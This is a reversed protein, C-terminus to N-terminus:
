DTRAIHLRRLTVQIDEELFGDDDGDENDEDELVQLHLIRGSYHVALLMQITLLVIRTSLAILQPERSEEGSWGHASDEPLPLHTAGHAFHNRVHRVFDLGVGSRGMHSPLSDTRVLSQYLISHATLVNLQELTETYATFPGFRQLYFIVRDVLGNAGKHRKGAPISPPGIVTAVTEFAGWAFLFVTLQATLRSLLDSRADEYERATGCYLLADDFRGTLVDIGRIGAALDLWSAADGYDLTLTKGETVAVPDQQWLEALTCSLRWCHKQLDLLPESFVIM